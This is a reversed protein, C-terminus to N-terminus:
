RYDLGVEEFLFTKIKEAKAKWHGSGQPPHPNSIVKPPERPVTAVKKYRFLSDPVIVALEEQLLLWGIVTRKGVVEKVIKKLNPTTM